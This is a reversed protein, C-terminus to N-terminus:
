ASSTSRSQMRTERLRRRRGDRLSSGITPPARAMQTTRLELHAEACDTGPTTLTAFSACSWPRNRSRRPVCLSRVIETRIGIQHGIRIGLM